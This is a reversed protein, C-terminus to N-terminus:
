NTCAVGNHLCNEHKKNEHNQSGLFIIWGRFNGYICLYDHIINVCMAGYVMSSHNSACMYMVHLCLSVVCSYLSVQKWQKVCTVLLRKRRLGDAIAYKAAMKNKYKVSWTEWVPRMVSLCHRGTASTYSERM